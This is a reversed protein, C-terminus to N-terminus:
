THLTGAVRSGAAAAHELRPLYQLVAMISYGVGLTAMAHARAVEDPTAGEQLMKMAGDLAMRAQQSFDPVSSSTAM